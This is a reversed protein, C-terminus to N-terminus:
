RTDPGSVEMGNLYQSQGKASYESEATRYQWQNHIM